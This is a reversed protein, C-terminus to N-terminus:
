KLLERSETDKELADRLHCERVMTDGSRVALMASENLLNALDARGFCVACKM